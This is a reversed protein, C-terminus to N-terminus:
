GAVLDAPVLQETVLRRFRAPDGDVFALGLRRGESYCAVYARWTPDTVFQLSKDVYPTARLSWRSVYAHVDDYMAGEQHLMLAANTPVSELAERARVIRAVREPEYDIGLPRVREAVIEHAAEGLLVDLAVEAIAESVLSQPTAILAISEEGYGRGRVLREEKLTHETHHGPYLEHAVLQGAFAAQTPVDTNFVVRSRLGGLYYNYAAWPEDSVLELEVAEDEPLALLRETRARFDDCLGGLAALLSEAPVHQSEDWARFRAGLDGSGRLADDLERHAAEFREEPAHELRVGYCREVEDVYPIRDGALRQAATLLGALQSELWRRRQEDAVIGDGDAIDALLRAADAALAAPDTPQEGDVRERLASPGYYFDVFGDVHRGLRLGLELYRDVFDLRDAYAVRVSV